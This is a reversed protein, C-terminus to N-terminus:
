VESHYFGKNELYQIFQTYTAKTLYQDWIVPKEGIKRLWGHPWKDKKINSLNYLFLHFRVGLIKKNPRQKLYSKIEDKEVLKGEINIKNRTLLYEGEPVYRTSSCSTIILSLIILIYYFSHRGKEM